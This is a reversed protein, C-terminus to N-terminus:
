HTVRKYTALSALLAFAITGTLLHGAQTASMVGLTICMVLFALIYGNLVLRQSQEGKIRGAFFTICAIAFLLSGLLHRITVAIAFANGTANPFEVATIGAPDLHMRLAFVTLVAAFFTLLTKYSLIRKM